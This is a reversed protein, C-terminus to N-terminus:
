QIVRPDKRKLYSYPAAIVSVSRGSSLLNERLTDLLQSYATGQYIYGRDHDHCILLYDSSQIKKPGRDLLAEKAILFALRIKDRIMKEIRRNQRFTPFIM